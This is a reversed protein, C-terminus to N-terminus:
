NIDVRYKLLYTLKRESYEAAHYVDAPKDFIPRSQVDFTFKSAHGHLLLTVGADYTVMPDALAEFRSYQVSVAPMLQAGPKKQNFYPLTGGIQLYYTNGTGMVPYANGAGNYSSGSTAVGTGPNNTGIMRIYNKGYDTRLAAGYISLSTGKKKNLPADYFIDAAFNRMNSQVTDKTATTHWLANKQFEAGIGINFVKKKGLYTGAAFPTANSEKDFFQWKFYGSFLKAPAGTNFVSQNLKPAAEADTYPDAVAVRYDFKGLQGKAYLSLMRVTVDTIGANSTAFAPMDYLLTQLPGTSFRSLGRWTSRGGGVALYDGFKYEGYADLLDMYTNSKANANVNSPGMQLVVLFNDTPQITAKVRIRRISVDSFHDVQTNNIITGPNMNTYRAWLEMYGSFKIFRSHDKSLYYNLRSDEPKDQASLELSGFFCFLSSLLLLRYKM